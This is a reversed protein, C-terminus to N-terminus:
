DKHYKSGKKIELARYVQEALVVRALGHPLTMKGLSVKRYGSSKVELPLGEAAGVVFSVSAGHKILADDLAESFEVSTQVVGREDLLTM